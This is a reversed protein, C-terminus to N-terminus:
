TTKTVIVNWSLPKLVTTLKEGRVKVDKKDVPAVANPAQKTNTIKLDAHHLEQAFSVSREGLGRLEIELDVSDTAHRNLVLAAVEGTERNHIVSGILHPAHAHTSTTFHDTDIQARLVDGRGFRSAQAFPHFITQRWAAGGTETFIPGIVNVLQALCAAKVRDANNIM